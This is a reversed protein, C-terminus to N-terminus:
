ETLPGKRWHPLFMASVRDGQAVRGVGDGTGVVVGVGDSIPTIPVAPRWTSEGRIVLLDRYNLSWARMEVSVEGRGPSPRPVEVTRLRDIGDGATMWAKM